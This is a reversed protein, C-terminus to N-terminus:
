ARAVLANWFEVSERILVRGASIDWRLRAGAVEKLVGDPDRPVREALTRREDRQFARGPELYDALYLMRGVRDWRAYGVSHYHVADLIGADREGQERAKRAAAPGHRLALVGWADPALLTLLDPDADRLADHLYAARLWRDREGEPVAAEAAWARLLAAVREVHTRREASLAAWPPFSPPSV